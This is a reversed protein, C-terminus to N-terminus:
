NRKFITIKYNEKRSVRAWIRTKKDIELELRGGWDSLVSLQVYYFLFNFSKTSITRKSIEMNANQVLMHHHDFLKPVKKTEIEEINEYPNACLYQSLNLFSTLLKKLMNTDQVLMHHDNFLNSGKNDRNRLNANQVLMHHHDFLKPFKITEM